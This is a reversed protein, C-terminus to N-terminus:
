IAAWWWRSTPQAAAALWASLREFWILKGRYFPSDVVRGNPAYISVVQLGATEVSIMRAEALPEDDGADPTRGEPRPQGFNTVVETIPSRSIVAM